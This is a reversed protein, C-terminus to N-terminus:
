LKGKIKRTTIGVYQGIGYQEHVVYDNPELELINQLIQGQKFTKQYRKIQSPRHFLEQQTYVSIDEYMFGEYFDDEIFIINKHISYAKLAEEVKKTHEEDLSIYITNGKLNELIQILPQDSKELTEIKSFIPNKFDMFDHFMQINHEKEFAFVDHFMSYKPLYQHSEVMEQIFSITEENLKKYGNEVEEQSSFIIHGQVYDMFQNAKLYSFYIYLHPDIDYNELAIKDKEIYDLLFDYDDQILKEHQKELESDIEKQLFEIQDDTFLLDTAPNILVSDITEITRQTEEHFIRISEIVTDFFEIRIPHDYELCYVDVIGGRSAYTCPRDVYNVKTYGARNLKQKLETMTIEQDVEFKFCLNRFLEKDPLYRFFAATNCIIIRPKDEKVLQTLVYLQEQKDEPSSAIAQVRLSEEMVFLLTDNILPKLRQYLQQAEYRNKKVVIRTQKDQMFASALCLAEENPLLNGINNGFQLMQQVIPNDQLKNLITEKM